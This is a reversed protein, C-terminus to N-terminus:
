QLGRRGPFGWHFVMVFLLDLGVNVGAAVIMAYLPSKSDGLARLIAAALNYALIIPVGAFLIRLYIAAGDFIDAPTQLIGLVPDIALETVVVFLVAAGATLKISKGVAKRLGRYDEAGYLQSFLISFGQTLGTVLGLVMWNIWDAAGIAALADVGVGQGVVITDVLMYFQQFLNGLILPIAFLFILKAPNGRTMDKITAKMKGELIATELLVNFM